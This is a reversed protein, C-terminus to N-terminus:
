ALMGLQGIHRGHDFEGAGVLLALNKARHHVGGFDAGREEGRGARRRIADLRQAAGEVGGHLVRFEQGLGLAGLEREAGEGALLQLLQDVLHCASEGSIISFTFAAM